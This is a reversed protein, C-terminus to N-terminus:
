ERGGGDAPEAVEGARRDAPDGDPEHLPDERAIEPDVVGRDHHERDEGGDQEHTRCPQEAETLDPHHSMRASTRRDSRTPQTTGRATAASTAAAGTRPIMPESSCRSSSSADM